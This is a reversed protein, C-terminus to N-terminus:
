RLRKLVDSPSEPFLTEKPSEHIFTRIESSEGTVVLVESEYLNKEIRGSLKKEEMAKRVVEHNPLAVFLHDDRDLRYEAIVYFDRLDWPSHIKINLFNRGDLNSVYMKGLIKEKPNDRGSVAFSMWGDLARGIFLVPYDTQGWAGALRKDVSGEDAPAIPNEWVPSPACSGLLLMSAMLGLLANKGLMM